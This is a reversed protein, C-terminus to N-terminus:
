KLKVEVQLTMKADQEKTVFQKWRLTHDDIKEYDTNSFKKIKREFEMTVEYFTDRNMMEFMEKMEKTENALFKDTGNSTFLERATRTITKKNIEFFPDYDETSNPGAIITSLAKNLADINEFDFELTTQLAEENWSTEVNSIGEVTKMGSAMMEIMQTALKPDKMEEKLKNEGIMGMADKVASYDQIFEYHGGGKSNFFIKVITNTCSSLSFLLISFALLLFPRKSKM